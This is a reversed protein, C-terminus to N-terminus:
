KIHVCKYTNGSTQVCACVSLDLDNMWVCGLTAYLGHCRIWAMVYPSVIVLSCRLCAGIVSRNGVGGSRM